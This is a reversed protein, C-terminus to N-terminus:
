ISIISRIKAKLIVEFINSDNKKFNTNQLMFKASSTELNQM